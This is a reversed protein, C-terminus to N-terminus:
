TNLENLWFSISYTSEAVGGTEPSSYRIETADKPPALIEPFDSPRYTVGYEEEKKGCGICICLICIVIPFQTRM